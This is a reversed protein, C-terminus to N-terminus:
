PEMEGELRGGAEDIPWGDRDANFTLDGDSWAKGDFSLRYGDSTMFTQLPALKVALAAQRADYQRMRVELLIAEAFDVASKASLEPVGIGAIAAMIAILEDDKM